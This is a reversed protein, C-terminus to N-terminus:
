KLVINLINDVRLNGDLTTEVAQVSKGDLRDGIEKAASVDGEIAKDFIGAAIKRLKDPNQAAYRRLADGFPKGIANNRNGKPAGKKPGGEGKQFPM